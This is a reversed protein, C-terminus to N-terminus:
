KATREMKKLDEITDCDLLEWLPVEVLSLRNLHACIVGVGGRDGQLNMLEPLLDRPFLCPNGRQGGSAAAVIKSPDLEFQSVLRCITKATLLPQDATMFLVGDYDLMPALGLAITHSIGREPQCNVIVQYERERAAQEVEKCGTVVHVAVFVDEPVADLCWQYLAKGRFQALLKNGGFRRGRGAAMVVCGLKM